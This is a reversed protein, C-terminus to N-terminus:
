TSPQSPSRLVTNLAPQFSATRLDAGAGEGERPTRPSISTPWPGPGAALLRHCNARGEFKQPSGRDEAPAKDAGGGHGESGGGFSKGVADVTDDSSM